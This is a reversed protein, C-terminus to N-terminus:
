ASPRRQGTPVGLPCVFRAPCEQHEPSNRAHCPWELMSTDSFQVAELVRNWRTYIRDLLAEDRQVIIERFRHPTQKEIILIMGQEMPEPGCGVDMYVNLQALYKDMLWDAIKPAGSSKIDVPMVKGNPMEMRRIDLRGSCHRREDTFGVEIEAPDVLELHILMSQLLSHFASGVQFNMIQGVSYREPVLLEPHFAYYLELEPTLCHSSPHFYGDWVREKNYVRIPYEAPWVGQQALLARELTPVLINGAALGDTLRRFRHEKKPPM